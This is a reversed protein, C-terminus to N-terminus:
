GKVFFATLLVMILRQMLQVTRYSNSPAIFDLIMLHAPFTARM